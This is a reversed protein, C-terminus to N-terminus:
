ESKVEELLQICKEKAKEVIAKSEKDLNEMRVDFYSLLEDDPDLSAMPEIEMLGQVRLSESDELILKFCIEDGMRQLPSRRYSALTEATILGEIRARLILEPNGHKEIQKVVVENINDGDKVKITITKM